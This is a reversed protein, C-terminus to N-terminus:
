CINEGVLDWHLMEPSLLPAAGILRDYISRLLATGLPLRTEFLRRSGGEWIDDCPNRPRDPPRRTIEVKTCIKAM